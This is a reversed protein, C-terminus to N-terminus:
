LQGYINDSSIRSIDIKVGSPAKTPQGVGHKQKSVVFDYINAAKCAEEISMDDIDENDSILSDRITDGLLAAEQEVLAVDQRFSKLNLNRIDDGDVMVAGSTVDYFREILNLVTSKGSGSGGVLAIFQGHPLELDVGRLVQSDPRSPYSFAVQQFRIDGLVDQVPHGDSDTEEITPRSEIIYKLRVAAEQAGAIEPAYSFIAGAGQASFVVAVYCIFFQQMTYEGTGILKTGGYWFLLGNVFIVLSQSLAYTLAGAFEFLLNGRLDSGLSEAYRKSVIDEMALAAVTRIASVAESAIGAAVTARKFRREVQLVIWTRMFGCAILVPITATAVLGLKWGFSCGIAIAGLLTVISNSISGLTNGSIGTLKTAESSLFATLAGSSNEERDFFAVDQRLVSAFAQSRARSGLASGAMAFCYGQLSQALLLVLGLMLFMVAWFNLSHGGNSLEPATLSMIANGFFIGQVPFGAGAVFGCLIGCILYWHEPENIKWVLKSLGLLSSDEVLHKITQKQKGEGHLVDSQATKERALQTTREPKRASDQHLNQAKVLSAYTSGAALLSEHTGQETVRGHEMVVILDAKQITSLRHAIVITTRGKAASSLAELVLHESESDLASTAEDLLLIKPNSVIARAIAVRQRQGGSLRSGREGVKTHYGEPLKEIFSHANATKAAEQVLKM